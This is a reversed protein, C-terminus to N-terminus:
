RPLEGRTYVIVGDEDRIFFYAGDALDRSEGASGIPSWERDGVLVDIVCDIAETVIMDDHIFMDGNAADTRWSYTKAM